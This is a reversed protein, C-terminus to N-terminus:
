DLKWVSYAFGDSPLQRFGLKRYLGIAASNDERVHLLVPQQPFQMRVSNVMAEALGQGRASSAVAIRPIYAGSEGVPAVERSYATLSRFLDARQDAPIRRIFRTMGASKAKELLAADIVTVVARLTGGERDVYTNEFETGPEAIQDAIALFLEPRSLPILDYFHPSALYILEAVALSIAQDLNNKTLRVLSLEPM